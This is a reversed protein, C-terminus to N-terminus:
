NRAREDRQLPVSPRDAPVLPVAMMAHHGLFMATGAQLLRASEEPDTRSIAIRLFLIAARKESLREAAVRAQQHVRFVLFAHTAVAALCAGLLPEAAVALEDGSLKASLYLLVGIVLCVVVPLLVFGQAFQRKAIRQWNQSEEAMAQLLSSWEANAERATLAFPGRRAAREAAELQRTGEIETIRGEAVDAVIANITSEDIWVHRRLRDALATFEASMQSTQM